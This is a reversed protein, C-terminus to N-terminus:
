DNQVNSKDVESSTYWTFARVIPRFRAEERFHAPVRAQKRRDKRRFDWLVFTPLPHVSFHLDGVDFRHSRRAAGGLAVLPSAEPGPRPRDGRGSWGWTENRRQRRSRLWAQRRALLISDDIEITEGGRTVPHPRQEVVLPEFDEPLGPLLDAALLQRPRLQPRRRRVRARRGAALRDARRRGGGRGAAGGAGPRRRLLRRRDSELRPEGALDRRRGRRLRCRAGDRHILRVGRRGAAPQPRRELDAGQRLVARGM